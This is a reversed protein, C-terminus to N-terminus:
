TCRARPPVFIISTLSVKFVEKQRHFGAETLECHISQKVRIFWSADLEFAKELKFETPVDTNKGLECIRQGVTNVTLGVQSLGPMSQNNLIYIFGKGTAPERDTSM